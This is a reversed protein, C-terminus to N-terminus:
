KTKSIAPINARNPNWFTPFRIFPSFVFAKLCFKAFWTLCTLNNETKLPELTAIFSPKSFCLFTTLSSNPPMSNVNLLGRWGVLLNSRKPTVPRRGDVLADKFSIEAWVVDRWGLLTLKTELGDVGLCLIDEVNRLALRFKEAAVGSGSRCLLIDGVPTSLPRLFFFTFVRRSLELFLLLLRDVRDM